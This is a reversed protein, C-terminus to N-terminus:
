SSSQPLSPVALQEPRPLQGNVCRELEAWARDALASGAATPVFYRRLPDKCQWSRGPQATRLAALGLDRLRCLVHYIDRQGSLETVFISGRGWLSLLVLLDPTSLTTTPPSDM